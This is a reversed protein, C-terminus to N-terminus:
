RRSRLDLQRLAAAAGRGVETLVRPRLPHQGVMMVACGCSLVGSWVEASEIPGPSRPAPTRTLRVLANETDKQSTQYLM